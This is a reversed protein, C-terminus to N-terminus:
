ELRSHILLSKIARYIFSIFLPRAEAALRAYFPFFYWHIQLLFGPNKGIVIDSQYDKEQKQGIDHIVPMSQQQGNEQRIYFSFNTEAVSLRAHQEAASKRQKVGQRAQRQGTQSISVHAAGENGHSQQAPARQRSKHARHDIEPLHQNHADPNAHAFRNTNGAGMRQNSIVNRSFIACRSKGNM